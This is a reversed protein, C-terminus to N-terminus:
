TWIKRPNRPKPNKLSNKTAKQTKKSKAEWEKKIRKSGREREEEKERETKTKTFQSYKTLKKQWYKPGQNRLELM